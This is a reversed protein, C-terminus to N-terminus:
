NAAKTEARAHELQVVRSAAWIGASPVARSVVKTAGWPDAM